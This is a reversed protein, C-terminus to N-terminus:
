LRIYIYLTHYSKGTRSSSMITACYIVGENLEIDSCYGSRLECTADKMRKLFEEMEAAYDDQFYNEEWYSRPIDPASYQWASREQVLIKMGRELSGCRAELSESENRRKTELDDIKNQMGLMQAKKRCNFRGSGNGGGLATGGEDDAVKRKKAADSNM